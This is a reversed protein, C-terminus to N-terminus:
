AGRRHPLDLVLLAHEQGAADVGPRPLAHGVREEGLAVGAVDELRERPDGALGEADVAREDELHLERLLDGDTQRLPEVGLHHHRRRLRGVRERAEGAAVSLLPPSASPELTVAVRRVGGERGVSRGLHQVPRHGDLAEEPVREVEAVGAVVQEDEVLHRPPARPPRLLDREEADHGPLHAQREQLDGQVRLAGLGLSHQELRLLGLADADERAAHRVIEIAKEPYDQAGEAAGLEAEAYAVRLERREAVGLARRDLRGDEGLVQEREGALPAEDDLDDVQGRESAVHLIQQPRDRGVGRDGEVDVARRVDEGVRPLEALDQHVEDDVGLLGEVCGGPRIM